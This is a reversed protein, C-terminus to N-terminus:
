LSHSGDESGDYAYNLALRATEYGFGVRALAALDKQEREPNRGLRKRRVYAIAAKLEPNEDNEDIEEFAKDLHEQDLGKAKLRMEIARKSLGQRRLSAVKSRAYVGDDLLGSKEYRQILTEVHPYFAKPDDGHFRCSRDIKRHMVQRLNAASSAYRQLYYLAANELYRETIKRPTKRKAPPKEQM